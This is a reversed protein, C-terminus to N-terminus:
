PQKTVRNVLVIPHNNLAFIQFVLVSRERKKTKREREMERGKQREKEGGEDGRIGMKETSTHGRTICCNHFCKHLNSSFVSSASNPRSKKLFGNAWMKQCHNQIKAKYQGGQICIHTVVLGGKKYKRKTHTNKCQVKDTLLTHTQTSTMGVDVATKKGCVDKFVSNLCVCIARFWDHRFEFTHTHKFNTHQFTGRRILINSNM